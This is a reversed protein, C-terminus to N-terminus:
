NLISALLPIGVFTGITSGINTLVVVLLVRSVLNKRLGKWSLLDESLEEFDRVRPKNFIAEVLGALWGASVAPNISTFPAVVFACIRTWWHAGAISAGIFAPISNAIAWTWLLKLSVSSDLNLAGYGFIGLILIVISYKIFRSVWVRAPPIIELSATNIEKGLLSKIGAQHGIGIVILIKKETIKNIKSALYLDREDILIKKIRPLSSALEEIMGSLVDKQKLEEIKQKDIKPVFLLSGALQSLIKIKEWFSLSRWARKITINVERDILFFPINKQKSLEIAKIMEAGAQINLQKGMKKQFASLLLSALLFGSKGEKIVKILDLDKWKETENLNKYRTACLEVCVADPKIEAVAQAVDDVSQQSIHATGLLYYTKDKLKITELM